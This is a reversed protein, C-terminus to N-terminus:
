NFSDRFKSPSVGTKSKFIRSFSQPHEFGLEYAIESVSLTTTSIREKAKEILKDQIHQQTNRGTTNKLLTSLYNPSLNLKSAIDQVKPIGHALLNDELLHENLIEELEELIQHNTIKRTLFQRNYFRDSYNLLVELQSLIINQSFGDMNTVSEQQINKIIDIIINEEKHSLFLAENVSYDFFGMSKIIKALSTNWLFDPHFLVMWGSVEPSNTSELDFTELEVIQGPSLFFMVGEDFDYQQQGYKFRLNKTYKLSICYFDFYIAQESDLIENSISDVNIVSILPHEPPTLGKFRHFDSISKIHIPQTKKM